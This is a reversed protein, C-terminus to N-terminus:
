ISYRPSRWRGIVGQGHVSHSKGGSPPHMTFLAFGIRVNTSLFPEQQVKYVENGDILYRSLGHERDIAITYTHFQDPATEVGAYPTDVLYLVADEYPVFDPIPLTQYLSALRQSTVLVDLSTVAAHGREDVFVNDDPGLHTTDIPMYTWVLFAVSGDRIDDPNGSINEAAMDVSSSAMGNDPLSFSETSVLLYKANDLHWLQDHKVSFSEVKIELTGEAVTEIAEPEACTWVEGNGLPIQMIAWKSRDLSPGTFTDYVHQTAINQNMIGTGERNIIVLYHQLTGSFLLAGWFVEEQIALTITSVQQLMELLM